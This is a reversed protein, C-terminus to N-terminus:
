YDGALLVKGEARMRVARALLADLRDPELMGRLGCADESDTLVDLAQIEAGTLRRGKEDAGSRQRQFFSHNLFDGGRAFSYGHDILTVRDGAVLYNGPHRDQQGILCDFFAAANHEGEDVDMQPRMPLGPREQSFSGLRGGEERLVCPPVLRDYPEGLREALRWAAVEHMPQQASDQGFGIAIEEYVGEFPKHYGVVGNDLELRSTENTGGDASRSKTVRGSLLNREDRQFGQTKVSQNIQDDLQPTRWSESSVVAPGDVLPAVPPAVRGRWAGGGGDGGGAQPRAPIVGGGAPPAVDAAAVQQEGHGKGPHLHEALGHDAAWQKAEAPPRRRLWLVVSEFQGQAKALEM